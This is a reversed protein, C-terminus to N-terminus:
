PLAVTAAGVLTKDGKQNEATMELDVLNDGGDESKATITGKCTIVDGLLAMSVFRTSFSRINRPPVWQTLVRGLLAMSLMGHAIIGPLGNAKAQDEDLHIPNFDGSAGAYMALGVKSIPPLSLEPISDGVSVQEFSVNSSM